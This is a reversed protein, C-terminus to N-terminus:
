IGFNIKLFNVKANLYETTHHTASLQWEGHVGFGIVIMNSDNPSHFNDYLIPMVMVVM